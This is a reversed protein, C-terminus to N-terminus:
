DVAVHVTKIDDVTDLSISISILKGDKDKVVVNKFDSEKNKWEYWQGNHNIAVALDSGSSKKSGFFMTVKLNPLWFPSLVAVRIDSAKNDYIEAIFLVDIYKDGDEFSIVVHQKSQLVWEPDSVNPVKSKNDQAFAYNACVLFLVLLSLATKRM